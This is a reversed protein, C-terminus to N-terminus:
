KRVMPFLSSRLAKVTSYTTRVLDLRVRDAYSPELHSAREYGYRSLAPDMLYELKGLFEEDFKGKWRAISNASIGTNERGFSSNSKGLVGLDSKRVSDLDVSISLFDSIREVQSELSVILDEYRVTLSDAGCEAISRELVSVSWHWSAAVRLVGGPHGSAWGARVVSLATSRPDRVINLFKADPFDRKIEKVYMYHWPTKEIWRRKNQTHCLRTMALKLVACYAPDETLRHVIAEVTLGAEEGWDSQTVAQAFDKRPGLRELNGYRRYYKSYFHTESFRYTPFEGCSMLIHLLLTTGSRPYGVIFVPSTPSYVQM